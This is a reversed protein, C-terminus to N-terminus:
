LAGAANPRVDTNSFCPSVFLAALPWKITNLRAAGIPAIAVQTTTLARPPLLSPPSSCVFHHIPIVSSNEAPVNKYTVETFSPFIGIGIPPHM